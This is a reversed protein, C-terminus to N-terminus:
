RQWLILPLEGPIRVGPHHPVIRVTFDEAPRITAVRGSYLYGSVTGAIPGDQQLAVIEPVDSGDNPDAYVEVSVDDPAMDGFYIPVSLTLADETRAAVTTGIHLSGWSRRVRREWRAMETAAAAGDALRARLEQAAPLYAKALYESVMRTSCFRPALVSMSRRIRALWARPMGEADRDYFEPAVEHELAAYLAAADLADQEADARRGADGVGWGLDSAFAEEWWGDLESLNLGGNVLIKMGSTGCAEWPRRPTNVWVDVGKVLEQALAIDYDELFVVRRRYEPRRAFAIWERIMEKGDEDDPHAKGAVVIQVPRREDNLLRGFREADRLLLNPRKYATFRRAFGLTLVNPDFVHVAQAVIDAPLGRAGLHAALRMRVGEVLERRADGRMQWLADDSLAEIAGCLEDPMGRWRDKGCAATWLRDAQASDWSPVHVGNTVHDVPVQAQPWRPFLPQFIHRSVRGHLRSVGFSALSGRLALYATNFAARRDGQEALGLSLLDATTVGPRDALNFVAHLYKGVLEQPYHDFGIPMPTHTTFVTGARAAYFAERFGIGLRQSLRRARELVALAAHGENIHCIEVEPRVTEIARWGGVGLVIEQLLRAETGGGYLKGTIGRDVPSNLPDNSDLLYLTTRGVAAQWVRLFLTRGPLDLPIRLGPGDILVPRLPMTAPENYPYAEQQWGAADILQRFYGEQFLLSVGIAPVGLDSATKLFDGALVGLGGAYLPLADSLGFEMSFFAVGSLAASGYTSNFWGTRELYARRAATLRALHDLFSPDDALQRLQATAANQLITWPNRTKLWAEADIRKWLADAEHSWTWRLDLALDELAALEPPLARQLLPTM